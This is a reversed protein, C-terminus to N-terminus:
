SPWPLPLGAPTALADYLTPSPATLGLGVLRPIARQVTARTTSATCMRERGGEAASKTGGGVEVVGWLGGCGEGLATCGELVRECGQVIVQKCPKSGVRRTPPRLILLHLFPLPMPSTWLVELVRELM